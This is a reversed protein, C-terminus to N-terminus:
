LTKEFGTKKKNIVYSRLTKLIYLMDRESLAADIPIHLIRESIKKSSSCKFDFNRYFDSKTDIKKKLLYNQLYDRKDELLQFYLPADIAGPVSKIDNLEKLIQYNSNRKQVMNKSDKLRKLGLLAQPQRMMQKISGTEKIASRPLIKLLHRTFIDFITRSTLISIIIRNLILIIYRTKSIQVYRKDRIKKALLGDGTVIFGGSLTDLTKGLGMSFYSAIGFTGIKKGKYECGFAQACDEILYLKNKKCIEAIKGVDACRGYNHVVIIAKTKNTIKKTIDDASINLTEDIDVFIPTAFRKIVSVVPAYTHSPLLIEDKKKINLGSLINSLAISGSPQLIVEKKFYYSLEKQLLQIYDKDERSLLIKIDKISLTLSQRPISKM